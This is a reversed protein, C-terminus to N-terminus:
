SCGQKKLALINEIHATPREGGIDQSRYSGSFRGGTLIAECAPMASDIHPRYRAPGRRGLADSYREIKLHLYPGRSLRGM